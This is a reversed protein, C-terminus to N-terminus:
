FISKLFFLKVCAKNTMHLIRLATQEEIFGAQVYLIFLFVVAM